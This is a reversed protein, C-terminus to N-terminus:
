LSGLASGPNSEEMIQRELLGLLFQFAHKEKLAGDIRHAIQAKQEMTLSKRELDRALKEIMRERLAIQARYTQVTLNRVIPKMM